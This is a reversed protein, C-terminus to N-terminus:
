ISRVEKIIKQMQKDTKSLALGQKLKDLLITEYQKLYTAKKLCMNSCYRYRRKKPLPKKCIKCILVADKTKFKRNKYKKKEYERRNRAKRSCIPSCYETFNTKPVYFDGCRKCVKVTKNQKLLNKLKQIEM